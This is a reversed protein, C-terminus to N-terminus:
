VGAVLAEADEITRIRRIPSPVLPLFAVIQGIAGVWLATRLGLWTGLAGGILGGFPIVGWVIFRRSANM